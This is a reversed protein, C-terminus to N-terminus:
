SRSGLAESFVRPMDAPDKAIYADGGTARAIQRLAAADADASIGIAIIRVPRSPDALDRLRAMLQPLSISGPDDNAGDTFLLVSNAAEPDYDALVAQYAALTTDYLGTGGGTLSGLGVLGAALADRQTGGQVHAGLQRIPLLERHDSAGALRHSFAWLGIAAADPFLGLGQQTAATTLAMRTQGGADFDMSGSVDVVALARTPLVLTAWQRLAGAVQATSAQLAEVEGVGDKRTAGDPGRFGSEALAEGVSKAGLLGALARTTEDIDARREEGTTLLVPYDLLLTGATPVGATLAPATALWVQESAATVGAGDQQLQELRRVDDPAAGRADVQAQALPVVTAALDTGARKAEAAGAVLPVAAAASTLPDGLVLDDASLADTWSAPPEGDASVLVVPSTALSDVLPQPTAPASVAAREVWSTSDPIWVDPADKGAGVRASVLASPVADVAIQDCQAREVARAVVPAIEPAAAVTISPGPCADSADSPEGGLLAYTGGAGVAVAVVVLGAILATSGRGRTRVARHRAGDGGSVHTSM